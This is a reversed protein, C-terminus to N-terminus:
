SNQALPARLPKLDVPPPSRLYYSDHPFKTGAKTNLCQRVEAIVKSVYDVLSHYWCALPVVGFSM